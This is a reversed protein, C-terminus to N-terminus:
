PETRAREAHLKAIAEKLYTWGIGFERQADKRRVGEDVVRRAARMADARKDRQIRGRVYIPATM